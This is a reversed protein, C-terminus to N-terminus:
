RGPIALYIIPISKLKIPLNTMWFELNETFHPPDEKNTELEM